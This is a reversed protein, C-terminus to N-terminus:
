MTWVETFNRKGKTEPVFKVVLFLYAIGFLSFLYFTSGGLSANVIPFFYGVAFTVIWNSTMGVSQGVGVCNPEVMESVMLFPIPGLGIAFSVVFLAASLSSVIPWSNIIGTAVLAASVSMGFISYLLLRKRGLVDIFRSAGVTVVTGLVSIFVNVLTSYKPIIQGLISVGYFMISNIGCLQQATMIILIAVLPKRYPKRTLFSSLSVPEVKNASAASAPAMLQDSEFMVNQLEKQWEEVERAATARNDRLRALIATAETARNKSVLWKPSEPIFALSALNILGLFFGIILIYRWSESIILGAIQASVIGVNVSIQSLAGFVGRLNYPAIENLFLPTVVIAAGAGLGSVFRGFALTNTNTANAMFLPGAIFSLTNFLSVKKPGYKSAAMGALLASVLGGVSFAATVYGVDRPDLDICDTVADHCIIVDLPANLEAVHYGFQLTGLCAVFAMWYIMDQRTNFQLISKFNPQQSSSTSSM